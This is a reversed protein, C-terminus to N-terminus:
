RTDRLRTAKVAGYIAGVVVLYSARGIRHLPYGNKGEIEAKCFRAADLEVAPVM